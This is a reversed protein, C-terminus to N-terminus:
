EVVDGGQPPLHQLCRESDAAVRIDLGQGGAGEISKEIGPMVDLVELVREVRELKQATAERQCGQGVAISIDCAERGTNQM